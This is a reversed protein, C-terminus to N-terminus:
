RGLVYAKELAEYAYVNKSDWCDIDKLHQVINKISELPIQDTSMVHALNRMTLSVGEQILWRCVDHKNRSYAMELAKSADHCKADWSDADKLQKVKTKVLDLSILTVVPLYQIACSVGEEILLCCVEYGGKKYANIFAKLVEDCTPDWSDTDKLHQIAKKVSELPVFVSIISTANKMTLLVGEQILLDCVDNKNGMYATQLAKSADNCKSDWSNTNKLNQIVKEVSELSVEHANIVGSLNKMKLSVGEHFLLDCVDHLNKAYATELAATVGNCHPDWTGTDKLNQIVRVFAQQSGYTSVPLLMDLTVKADNKLLYDTMDFREKCYTIYLATSYPMKNLYYDFARIFCSYMDPPFFQGRKLDQELHPEWNKNLKLHEVVKMLVNIDGHLVVDVVHSYHLTIGEQLLIEIIDQNGSIYARYLTQEAETCDPNFNQRRKLDELITQVRSLEGHRAANCLSVHTYCANMTILQDATEFHHYYLALELLTQKEECQWCNHGKNNHTCALFEMLHSYVLKVADEDSQLVCQLFTSCDGESVDGFNRQKSYPDAMLVDRIRNVKPLEDKLKKVFQNQRLASHKVVSNIIRKEVVDHVMREVLVGYVSVPIFVNQSVNDKAEAAYTRRYLYGSDGYKVVMEPCMDGLVQGVAEHVTAHSFQICSKNVNMVSHSVYPLNEGDQCSSVKKVYLGSYHEYSQRLAIITSDDISIRLCKAIEQLVQLYNKYEKFQSPSLYEEEIEVVYFLFALALLSDAKLNRINDVLFKEPSKFFDPGQVFLDENGAFLTCCKPFGILGKFNIICQEIKNVTMDKAKNKRKLERDLINNKDAKQLKDSCLTLFRDCRFLEFSKLKTFAKLFIDNRITIIVQLKGEDVHNQIKKLYRETWDQLLGPDFDYQGFIDELIVIKVWDTDVRDWQEPRIIVVRQDTYNNNDILHLATSTKGEGPNGKIVVSRKEQLLKKAKETQSTPIFGMKRFTDLDDETQNRLQRLGDSEPRKRRTPFKINNVIEVRKEEEELMDKLNEQKSLVLCEKFTKYADYGRQQIWQILRKINDSTRNGESIDRMTVDDLLEKQQIYISVTKFDLDRVLKPLCRNLVSRHLMEAELIRRKPAPGDMDDDFSRKRGETGPELTRRKSAPGDMDGDFSRKQGETGEDQESAM